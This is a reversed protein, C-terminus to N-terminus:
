TAARIRGAPFGAPDDVDVRIAVRAAVRVLREQAAFSRGRCSHADDGIPREVVVYREGARAVRPEHVAAQLHAREDDAAAAQRRLPDHERVAAAHADLPRAIDAISRGPRVIARPDHPRGGNAALRPKVSTSSRTVSAITATRAAIASGEYPSGTRRARM